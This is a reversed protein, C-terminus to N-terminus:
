KKKYKICNSMIGLKSERKKNGTSPRLIAIGDGGFRLNMLAPKPFPRIWIKSSSSNKVTRSGQRSTKRTKSLGCSSSTGQTNSTKSSCACKILVQYSVANYKAIKALIALIGIKCSRQSRKQKKRM